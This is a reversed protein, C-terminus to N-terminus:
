AYRAKMRDAAEAKKEDLYFDVDMGFHLGMSSLIDSIEKLSKRGFNRFKLMDSETKRVLDGITKIEANRLCNSSRVSLELEDVSKKLLDHIRIWEEDVESVEEEVLEEEKTIFIQLHNKLISAAYSMADQPTVSGDTWIELILKDYDTRHGVRTNEVRFNVRRVPSFNADVPIVGIPRDTHGQAESLVFGRGADVEIEVRLHGGKDVNAIPITPNLIEVSADGEFDGAKVEQPGEADITLTRLEEASFRFRMKKINIIIEAVDERINPLTSFEHLAGDIRVSIVSAGQLSSLLVRRLGNGITTGYGRELPEIVFKGYTDTASADEMTVEKPMQLTRFNM